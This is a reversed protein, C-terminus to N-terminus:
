FNSIDIRAGSERGHPITGKEKKSAREDMLLGVVSIYFREYRV